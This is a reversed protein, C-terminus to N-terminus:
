PATRRELRHNEIVVHVNMGQQAVTLDLHQAMDFDREVGDGTSPVTFALDFKMPTPAPLPKGQMRKVMLTLAIKAKVFTKGDREETGDISGNGSSQTLDLDGAEMGLLPAARAMDIAWTGTAGQPEAPFMVENIQTDTLHKQARQNKNDADKRLDADLAPPIPASGPAAAYSTRGEAGDARTVIVVVGTVAVDKGDDDKFSEYTRKTSTPEGDAGVADVHEVYVQEPKTEHKQPPMAPQGNAGTVTQSMSGQETKSVRTEAGVAPKKNMLERLNFTDQALVAPALSLLAVSSAITLRALRTM